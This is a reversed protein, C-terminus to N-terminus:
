VYSPVGCGLNNENKKFLLVEVAKMLARQRRRRLESYCLSEACVSPDSLGPPGNGATDRTHGSTGEVAGREGGGKMM